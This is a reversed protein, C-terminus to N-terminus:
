RGKGKGKKKAGSAAGVLGASPVAGWKEEAGAGAAAAVGQMTEVRGQAGGAAGRKRGKGKPPRYYSRDRVPLWREPDPARGEVYDKPRRAHRRPKKRPRPDPAPKKAPRNLLEPPPPTPPVGATELAFADTISILKSLPTLFPTSLETLHQLQSSPIQAHDLPNTLAAVLGLTSERDQPPQHHLTAYCKQARHRHQPHPSTLLSNSAAKILLEQSQAPATTDSEARQAFHKTLIMSLRRLPAQKGSSKYLYALLGIMGESQQELSSPGDLSGALHEELAQLAAAKNGNKIHIQVITLVYGPSKAFRSIRTALESLKEVAAKDSRCDAYSAALLVALQNLMESPLDPAKVWRELDNQIKARRKCLVSLAHANQILLRRQHGYPYPTTSEEQGPDIFHSSPLTWRYPSVLSGIMRHALFPNSQIAPLLSCSYRAIGQTLEDAAALASSGLIEKTLHEAKSQEGMSLAVYLQQLMIPLLEGEKEEDSLEGSEQCLSRAKGLLYDARKLEGRAIECSAWNFTTEFGLLDESTPQQEIQTAAECHNSIAQARVALQNIRLDNLEHESGETDQRLAEYAQEAAEFKEARYLAQAEVHKAGRPDGSIEDAAGFAGPNLSLAQDDELIGYKSLALNRALNGRSGLQYPPRRTYWIALNYRELKCLAVLKIHQADLDSPTEKLIADARDLIEQHDTITSNRLATLLAKSM